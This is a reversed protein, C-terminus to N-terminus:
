PRVIDTRLSIMPRIVHLGYFHLEVFTLLFRHEDQLRHLGGPTIYNKGPTAPEDAKPKRTLGKRM